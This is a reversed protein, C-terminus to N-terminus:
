KRRLSRLYEKRENPIRASEVAKQITKAHIWPSLRQQEIYPLTSEYQKALATAFYWAVMMKLYYDDGDVSAALSLMQADFHEDLYHTMLMELGFRQTYVEGSAMWRKIDEILKDRSKSFCKPRMSDCTGWNDVSPLFEDIRRICECYERIDSILLAHLMNEEYSAHPLTDMFENAEGSKCLEKALARLLPLRVGIVSQSDVTPLLKTMFAKYQADALSLLREHIMDKM